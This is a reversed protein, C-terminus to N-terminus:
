HATANDPRLSAHRVDEGDVMFVVMEGINTAHDAIREIYRGVSQLAQSRTLSEQDGSTHQLLTPFLEAYADDVSEDRAMVRAARPADRKIFAGIANRLMGQAVAGMRGIPLEFEAPALQKLEIVRKCINAALDGTRELDTVIKLATTIFRLDSAVPQRRALVQLCREDIEIELQDVGRDREIVARALDADRAAFARLAGDLMDEVSGGMIVVRDRLRQLEKEYKQDTHLSAM